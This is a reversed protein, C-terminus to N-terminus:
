EWEDDPLEETELSWDSNEEPYTLDEQKEIEPHAVEDSLPPNMETFMSGEERYITEGENNLGEEEQYNQGQAFATALSLFLFLSTMSRIM